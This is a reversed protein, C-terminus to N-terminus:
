EDECDCGEGGCGGCGGGHSYIVGYAPVCVRVFLKGVWLLNKKISIIHKAINLM